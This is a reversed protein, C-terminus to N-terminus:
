PARTTIPAKVEVIVRRYRTFSPKGEDRAELIVHHRGPTAAVASSLRARLSTAEEITLPAIGAYGPNIDTYEFWRYRITDGDPDRSGTADLTLTEGASVSINIVALGANGNVVLEPPHNAADQKSSARNSSVLTWRMRAAFDNQYAERWRWITAKNSRHIKGDIGTVADATDAYLGDAATVKEYRGGWSGYEPHELVGLGNPILYLFSPTDGEMIYQWQPYLAGLPGTRINKELWEHSVLTADAGEVTLANGSIGPWAAQGYQGFGHISAIWFLDPFNRRIWPGADDQDSISYVRLKAVFASVDKASRTTRVDTLAQALERAGGWIPIWVPRTDAKDVAAIILDSGPSHQGPAVGQMGYSPLGSRISKLLTEADPYGSAHQRLNGLVAGYARVREEILDPRVKDRQWTSTTAVLGEIDFDNAYLLFRVMSESDDPENGIDTLVLVRTKTGPPPAPSQALALESASLIVLAGFITALRARSM